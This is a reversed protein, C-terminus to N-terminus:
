RESPSTARANVSLTLTLTLTLTLPLTLTLVPKVESHKVVGPSTGHDHEIVPVIGRYFSPMTRM